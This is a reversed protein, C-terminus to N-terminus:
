DKTGQAKGASPGRRLVDEVADAYARREELSMAEVQELWATQAVTQVRAVGDAQARLVDLVAGRDFPEARLATLMEDFKARRARRSPLEEANRVAGLVARRTERELAVVYPLAYSMGPGEGRLPAPGRLAIGAVFGAIALNIGLSVALLVKVWVATRPRVKEDQV